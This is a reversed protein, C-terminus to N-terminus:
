EPPLNAAKWRMACRIRTAGSPHDFFIWEEVPGPEMKRYEGLKLAAEAFGDPQRAANLGFMDAEMEQMRIFSNLFPTLIFLYASFLLIALPTVAVDGIGSIGWGAGFAALSRELSWRLFAFGVVIVIGFFLIMKFVHNMVYHGMEHGMVAEIEPLSSRNLLNDNLTIRMTGLFGSVNASVRKSQKSADMVYVKDAPIGNARALRLIPDVVKPDSLITYKNFLPAIFVPAILVFLVLFGVMVAAGWIHWTRQLRRVIGFLAMLLLAGGIVGVMQNKSWDGFWGALDLNSLGYQHERFYDSYISLPLGLLATLIFYQVAYLGTQLPKFRTCRQALDRMRASLRGQLLLAAIGAGYVFGWLQLWYGGEFYADSQAKKEPPIRDLYARTAKEVDFAPQNTTQGFSNLALCLVLVLMLWPLIKM